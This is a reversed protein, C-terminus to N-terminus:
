LSNEAYCTSIIGQSATAVELPTFPSYGLSRLLTVLILYESSDERYGEEHVRSLQSFVAQCEQVTFTKEM